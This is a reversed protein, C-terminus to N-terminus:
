GKAKVVLELEKLREKFHNLANRVKTGESGSLLLSHKAHNQFDSIAEDLKYNRKKLGIMLPQLKYCFEIDDLPTQAHNALATNFKKIQKDLERIFKLPSNCQDRWLEKDKGKEESFLTTVEELFKNLEEGILWSNLQTLFDVPIPEEPENVHPEKFV